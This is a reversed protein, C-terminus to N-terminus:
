EALLTHLNKVAPTVVGATKETDTPTQYNEKM